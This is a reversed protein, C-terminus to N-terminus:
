SLKKVHEKNLTCYGGARLKGVNFNKTVPTIEDIMFVSGKKHLITSPKKREKDHYVKVDQLAQYRGKTNYYSAKKVAHKRVESAFYEKVGRNSRGHLDYSRHPCDTSSLERHLPFNDATIAINYKKCLDYALKFAKQENALFTKKDGLSQCVEIGIYDRNGTANACHWASNYDHEAQYTGDSAVYYHAFGTEPNHGDLWKKYFASTANASGGDNHIVIKTPNKGRKGAIGSYKVVM